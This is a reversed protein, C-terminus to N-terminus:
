VSSLPEPDVMRSAHISSARSVGPRAEPDDDALQVDGPRVWQGLFSIPRRVFSDKPLPDEVLTSSRSHAEVDPLSSPQEVDGQPHSSPQKRRPSIQPFWRMVPHISFVSYYPPTSDRISSPLTTDASGSTITRSTPESDNPGHDQQAAHLTGNRMRQQHLLAERRRAREKQSATLLDRRLGMLDSSLGAIKSSHGGFLSHLIDMPSLTQYTVARLDDAQHEFEQLQVQAETAMGPPLLGETAAKEYINKTEALIEDIAKMRPGPLYVNLYVLMSFLTSLLALGGVFYNFTSEAAM